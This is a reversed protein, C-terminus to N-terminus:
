GKSLKSLDYTGCVPCYPKTLPTQSFTLHCRNCYLNNLAAQADELACEEPIPGCMARHECGDIPCEPCKGIVVIKRRKVLTNKKM